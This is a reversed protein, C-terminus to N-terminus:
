NGKIMQGVALGIGVSVYAWLFVVIVVADMLLTALVAIIAITLGGAILGVIRGTRRKPESPPGAPLVEFLLPPGEPSPTAPPRTPELVFIPEPAPPLEMQSLPLFDSGNPSPPALLSEDERISM